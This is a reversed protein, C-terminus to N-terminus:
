LSLFPVCKQAWHPSSKWIVQQLHWMQWSSQVRPLFNNCYEWHCLIKSLLWSGLAFTVAMSTYEDDRGFSAMTVHTTYLLPLGDDRLLFIYICSVYLLPKEQTNPPASFLRPNIMTLSCLLYTGPYLSSLFIWSNFNTCIKQAMSALWFDQSFFFHLVYRKM